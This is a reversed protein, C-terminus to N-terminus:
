TLLSFRECEIHQTIYYVLKLYFPLKGKVCEMTDNQTCGENHPCNKQCNRFDNDLKDWKQLLLQFSVTKRIIDSFPIASSLYIRLFYIVEFHKM